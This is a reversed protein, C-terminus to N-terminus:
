EMPNGVEKAGELLAGIFHEKGEQIHRYINETMIISSDVIMGLGIALGGLTMINITLNFLKFFIFAFIASLPIALSVVITSKVNNLFIYLVLIVLFAGIFISSAVNRTSKTIMDLQNYFPTISWGAPLSDRIEDLVKEVGDITKKVNSNYQNQVTVIVVEQGSEGATGRRVFPGITVEAVHEITIPVGDETKLVINNIDQITEIRGMGRIIKEEPGITLFGGSSNINNEALARLVDSIQIEYNLMSYPNLLVHFQKLFGGLIVVNSVGPVTQLRPKLNWEAFDRTEFLDNGKITFEIADAFMSSIPGIFPPEIGEPLTPMIMQLKETVLQRAFYIDTGFEFEITIKSLGLTSNSRVRKVYPLSNFSSELPFTILTEIDEPAMGPSETMVNVLPANLDPYVDVPLEALFKLGVGILIIALILIVIRNKIAYEILSTIM